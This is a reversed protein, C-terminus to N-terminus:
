LIGTELDVLFLCVFISAATKNRIYPSLLISSFELDCILM